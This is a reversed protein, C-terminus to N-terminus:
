APLLSHVTNAFDDLTERAHQLKRLMDEHGRRRRALDSDEELLRQVADDDLAHTANAVRLAADHGFQQVLYLDVAMPVQDGLRVALIDFYREIKSKVFDVAYAHADGGGSSWVPEASPAPADAGVDTRHLREEIPAGTPKATQAGNQAGTHLTAGMRRAGKPSKFLSPEASEDATPEDTAGAADDAARRRPSARLLEQTFPQLQMDLLMRVASAADAHREDALQKTTADLDARLRPFRRAFRQASTARAMAVVRARVLSACREAAPATRAVIDRVLTAFIAYSPFGYFSERGHQTAVALRVDADYHSSNVNPAQLRVADDFARYLALLEAM